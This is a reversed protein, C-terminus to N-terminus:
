QNIIGKLYAPGINNMCQFVLLSLKHMVRYRIPLWHLEKLMGAASDRWSRNLILRAAARQLTQLKKFNTIDPM